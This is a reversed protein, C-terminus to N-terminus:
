FAISENPSWPVDYRPRGQRQRSYFGSVFRSIPDRVFFVVHEGIPVDRITIDHSHAVIRFQETVVGALAHKVATGGTKGVHLLHVPLCEAQPHERHHRPTQTDLMPTRGTSYGFVLGAASRM